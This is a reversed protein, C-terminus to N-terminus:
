LPDALVDPVVVVRLMFGDKADVGFVYLVSRTIVGTDGDPWGNITGTVSTALLLAGILRLEVASVNVAWNLPGAGDLWCTRAVVVLPETLKVAVDFVLQSPTVCVDPLVGLVSVIETFWDDKCDVEVGYVPVMVM